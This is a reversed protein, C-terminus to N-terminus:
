IVQLYIKPLAKWCSTVRREPMWHWVSGFHNTPLHWGGTRMKPEGSLRISSFVSSFTRLKIMAFLKSVGASTLVKFASGNQHPRLLVYKHDPDLRWLKHLELRSMLMEVDWSLKRYFSSWTSKGIEQDPLLNRITEWMSQLEWIFPSFAPGYFGLSKRGGPQLAMIWM